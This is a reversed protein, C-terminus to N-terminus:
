LPGPIPSKGPGYGLIDIMVMAMGMINKATRNNPTGMAKTIPIVERTVSNIWPAIGRLASGWYINMPNSENGSSAM